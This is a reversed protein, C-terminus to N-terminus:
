KGELVGKIQYIEQSINQLESQTKTIKDRESRIFRIYPAITENLRQLSRDIEKNFHNQLSQFLKIRVSAIRELLKTKGKRRRAPIIFLGLVAMFSAMIVGTVDAAATTAITTVLAGL